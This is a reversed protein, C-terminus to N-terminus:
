KRWGSKIQVEILNWNAIACIIALETANRPWRVRGIERHDRSM